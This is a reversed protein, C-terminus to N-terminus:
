HLHKTLSITAEADYNRERSQLTTNFDESNGFNLITLQKISKELHGLHLTLKLTSNRLMRM